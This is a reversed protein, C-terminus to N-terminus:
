SKFIWIIIFGFTLFVFGGYRLQSEQLNNIKLIFKKMNKPFIAYFYGDVFLFLGFAIILENM